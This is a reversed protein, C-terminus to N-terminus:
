VSTEIIGQFEWTIDNPAGGPCDMTVDINIVGQGTPLYLDPLEFDVFLTDAGSQGFPLKANLPFQYGDVVFSALYQAGCPSRFSSTGQISRLKRGPALNFNFVYESRPGVMLSEVGIRYIGSGVPGVEYVNSGAHFGGYPESAKSACGSLALVALISIIAKAM